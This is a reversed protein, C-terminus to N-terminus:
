TRRAASVGNLMTSSARGYRYGVGRVTAITGADDGLKRRLSSVVVEVVNSGGTWEYGWVDRLLAAREVAQGERVRLYALVQAELPTLDSPGGTEGEDLLQSAGLEALWGEVSAPGFDMCVTGAVGELPLYGIVIACSPDTGLLDAGRAYVRRLEPRMEMYVRTADLLLASLAAMDTNPVIWRLYLARQGRPIPDSRLHERWRSALPDGDIVRPSVDGPQILCAFGAVAGTGKCAVIFADPVAAWWARLVDAEEPVLAEMAPLDAATAPRVLQEGAAAPFFARRVSEEEILYLLDATYRPLERRPAGRLEARLCSWAAARMRWYEQPDAARLLAATAERVTDHVLLGGATLEVFPLERLRAFAETAPEEHLMAALLSLTTRRTLAAANLARRTPADLGDLYLRALEEGVTGAAIEEIALGPRDRLARAALQLSLPHGHAVANIRPATARDVGNRVLLEDAEAPSLNCLPITCLLPGYSRWREAPVMRGAIVVRVNAPLAPILTRCVWRDVVAHLEFTDLVLLVREGRAGVAAVAEEVTSGGLAALVERQTALVVHGDLELTAFGAERADATFAHLLTTKGVGALGHVYAVVPGDPELLRRLQARERERGAIEGAQQALLAGITAAM